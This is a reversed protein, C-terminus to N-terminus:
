TSVQAVLGGVAKNVIMLKTLKYELRITQVSNRM